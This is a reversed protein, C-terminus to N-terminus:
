LSVEGGRVGIFADTIGPTNMSLVMWAAMAAARATLAGQLAPFPPRRGTNREAREPPSDESIDGPELAVDRDSQAAPPEDPGARRDAARHHSVVRGRGGAGADPRVAESRRRVASSARGHES